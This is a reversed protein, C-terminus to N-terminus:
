RAVLFADPDDEIVPEVAGFHGDLLTSLARSTAADNPFQALLVGQMAERPSAATLTVARAADVLMRTSIGAGTPYQTLDERNRRQDAALAALRTAAGAEIGTLGVLIDRETAPTPYDLRVGHGFRQRVAGDIPLTGVYEAGENVTAVLLLGPRTRLVDGADTVRLSGTEDMLGLLANLAAPTETRNLEDLLVVTPEDSRLSEGFASWAWHWVKSEGDQTMRGAWDDATRVMGCDVKVFRAGVAAAFERVLLTKATGAPGSVLVAAPLNDPHQRIRWARELTEYTTRTTIVKGVKARAKTLTVKTTTPKSVTPEPAPAPTSETPAPAPTPTTRPKSASRRPKSSASASLPKSAVLRYEGSRWYKEVRFTADLDSLAANVYPVSVPTLLATDVTTAKGKGHSALIRAGEHFLTVIGDPAVAVTCHPGYPRPHGTDTAPISPVKIFAM